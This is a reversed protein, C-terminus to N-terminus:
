RPQEVNWTLSSLPHGYFSCKRKIDPERKRHKKLEPKERKLSEPAMWDMQWVQEMDIIEVGDEPDSYVEDPAVKIDESEKQKFNKLSPASTRAGQSTASGARDPPLAPAFNSPRIRRNASSGAMAPGMAFPGSATM